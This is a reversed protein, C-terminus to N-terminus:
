VELPMTKLSEELAKIENELITIENQCKEENYNSIGKGALYGVGLGIAAAVGVIGAGALVSVKLGAGLISALTLNGVIAGGAVVSAKQIVSSKQPSMKSKLYEIRNKKEQISKKIDQVSGGPTESISNAQTMISVSDPAAPKVVGGNSQVGGSSNSNNIPSVM